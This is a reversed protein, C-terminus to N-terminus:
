GTVILTVPEGVLDHPLASGTPSADVPVLVQYTGPLPPVTSPPVTSPPVTSSSVTTLPAATTSPVTAGVPRGTVAAGCGVLLRGSAVLAVVLRGTM